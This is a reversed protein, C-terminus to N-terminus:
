LTITTTVKVGEVAGTDTEPVKPAVDCIDPYKLTTRVQGSSNAHGSVMDEGYIRKAATLTDYDERDGSFSFSVSDFPGKAACVIGVARVVDYEDFEDADDAYVSFSLGYTFGSLSGGGLVEHEAFAMKLAKVTEAAREDAADHNLQSVFANCGSLVSIGVLIAGLALLKSAKM